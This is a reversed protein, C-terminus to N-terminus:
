NTSVLLEIQEVVTCESRSTKEKELLKAFYADSELAERILIWDAKEDFTMNEFTREKRLLKVYKLQKEYEMKLALFEKKQIATKIKNLKDDKMLSELKERKAIEGELFKYEEVDNMSMKDYVKKDLKARLIDLRLQQELLSKLISIDKRAAFSLKRSQVDKVVNKDYAKLTEALTLYLVKVKETITEEM